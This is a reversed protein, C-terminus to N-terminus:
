LTAVWKLLLIIFAFMMPTHACYNFVEVDSLYEEYDDTWSAWSGFVVVSGQVSYFVITPVTTNLM